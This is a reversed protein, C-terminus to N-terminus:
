VQKTSPRPAPALVLHIPLLLLMSVLLAIAYLGARAIMRFVIASMSASDAADLYQFSPPSCELLALLLVLKRRVASGKYFRATYSDVLQTFVPGFASVSVLLRDFRDSELDAIAGSVRHYDLYKALVYPTPQQGILYQTYVRCERELPGAGRPSQSM